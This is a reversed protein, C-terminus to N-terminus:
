GRGILTYLVTFISVIIIMWVTSRILTTNASMHSIRRIPYLLWVTFLQYLIHELSVFWQVTYSSLQIARDRINNAIKYVTEEITLFRKEVSENMRESYLWGVAVGISIFIMSMLIPVIQIEMENHQGFLWYHIAGNKLLWFLGFFVLMIAPVIIALVVYLSLQTTSTIPQKSQQKAQKWYRMFFVTSSLSSSLLVFLSPVFWITNETYISTVLWQQLWYGSLPPAGVLTIVAIMFAGFIIISNHRLMTTYIIIIALLWITLQVVMFGYAEHGYAFLLLGINMQVYYSGENNRHVLLRITCWVVFLLGVWACLTVIIPSSTVLESFSILTYIPVIIFGLTTILLQLLPPQYRGLKLWNLYPFAGILFIVNALISLALWFLMAETFQESQGGFVNQLMTFQLSKDPMYWYLVVIVVLLATHAVIQSLVYRWILKQNCDFSTHALMLYVSVSVLISCIYFSLISDSLLLGSVAFMLLSMYAYISSGVIQVKKQLMIIHILFYVGSVLTLLWSTLNTIEYGVTYYVDGIILWDLHFSYDLTHPQLREILVIVSLAFALMAFIANIFAGGQKLSKGITIITIFSVIYIIPLLWVEQSFMAM